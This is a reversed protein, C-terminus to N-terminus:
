VVAGPGTVIVAEAHGSSPSEVRIHDGPAVPYLPLPSGTLVIQGRKLALGTSALHRVVELLSACPGGPVASAAATGLPLGNRFVSITKAELESPHVFSEEREPLVVGAHLANNAILEEATHTPRRFVHNHLEIVPFFSAMARQWNKRLWVAGPIDEAIRFAFEGEIALSEFNGADLAVGSRYIESAFLRGFAPRGIGLRRQVAPSVCGIKYGACAEGRAERLVTMHRQVAYAEARTLSFARDAFIRGPTHADYDAVQRRAIEAIRAATV